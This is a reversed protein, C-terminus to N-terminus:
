NLQSYQRTASDPGRKARTVILNEGVRRSLRLLREAVRYGVMSDDLEVVVKLGAKLAQMVALVVNQSAVDAVTPDPPVADLHISPYVGCLHLPIVGLFPSYFVLLDGKNIQREGNVCDEPIREAPRFYVTDYGRVHSKEFYKQLFKSLIRTRFSVIRPNWLSERGYARMGRFRPKVRPNDLALLRYSGRLARLARYAAPHRHAVEELLEWLRGERIAQKVRRISKAIVYLNHLALLRTRERKPLERLEQPTYKSCVPCNCPFYELDDLRYVGYPTMYRDDRAYLIYSASDFTDVGLAVAFPLILPHGAGFLHVPRGAPLIEKATAIMKIILNYNYKELFVTPSGIGYMRYSLKSAERASRAVLDLYRGGQVPLVWLIDDGEPDIIRLAERARRITEEVTARARSYPVDGTPVDLIVGIDPRLYAKQYRLIEEQSVEITGYALIQYAGSDTMVVGDWGLAGHINAITTGWRKYALYANTIVQNFGAIRVEDLGVEQRMPDIVPFFAPTEIKGSRLHLRGVRGSLDVDLVEFVGLKRPL